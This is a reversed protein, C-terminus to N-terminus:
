RALGHRKAFDQEFAKLEADIQRFRGLDATTPDQGPELMTMISAYVHLAGAFFASRMDDIQGPPASDPIAALKLGIFGAEILKGRDVLERTFAELKAARAAREDPTM